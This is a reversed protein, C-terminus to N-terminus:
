FACSQFLMVGRILAISRVNKETRISQNIPYSHVPALPATCLRGVKEIQPKRVIENFSIEMALARM